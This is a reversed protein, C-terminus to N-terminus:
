RKIEVLLVWSNMLGSTTAIVMAGALWYLGGISTTITAVAGVVALTAILVGPVVHTLRWSLPENGKSRWRPLDMLALTVLGAALVAGGIGLGVESLGPLQVLLSAALPYAFFILTEIARGPLQKDELIADLNFSIAVFALGLLAVAVNLYAGVQIPAPAAGRAIAVGRAVRDVEAGVTLDVGETHRAAAAITRPGSAAVHVPVKAAADEALWRIRSSVGGRLLVEEGCLFGQLTGLAEEFERVTLADLGIQSLASDGKGIGLSVRGGSERQL